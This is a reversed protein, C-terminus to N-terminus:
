TDPFVRIGFIFVESESGSHFITLALLQTFTIYSIADSVLQSVIRVASQKRNKVTMSALLHRIM